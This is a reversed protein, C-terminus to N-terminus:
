IYALQQRWGRPEAPAAPAPYRAPRKAPAYKPEDGALCMAKLLDYLLPCPGFGSEVNIHGAQRANFLPLKWREALGRADNYDLWPDNESAILLGMEALAGVPLLSKVSESHSDRTRDRVGDRSFREPDAPAVLVAGAVKAPQRAIAVASALCGFSHAVIWVPKTSRDIAAAVQDAWRSLVPANWDIGTVRQSGAIKAQLWSQWHAAGSGRYGPVILVTSNM